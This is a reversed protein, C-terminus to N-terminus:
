TKLSFPTFDTDRDFYDENEKRKLFAVVKYTVPTMLVEWGTKLVYNTVMVTLLLENSFIGYFAIPYFLASDVAEGVITSGITRTWLWRGDTLIKM